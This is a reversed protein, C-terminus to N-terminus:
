DAAIRTRVGHLVVVSTTRFTPGGNPLLTVLPLRAATRGAGDRWEGRFEPDLFGGQTAVTWARHLMAPTIVVGIVQGGPGVMKTPILRTSGAGSGSDEVQRGPRLPADSLPDQARWQEFAGSAPRAEGLRAPDELVVDVAHWPAAPHDM